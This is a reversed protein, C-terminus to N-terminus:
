ENCVGLDWNSTSMNLDRFTLKDWKGCGSYTEKLTNGDCNLCIDCACVNTIVDITLIRLSPEQEMNLLNLNITPGTFPGIITNGCKFRFKLDGFFPPRIFPLEPVKFTVNDFIRKGKGFSEWRDLQPNKIELTLESCGSVKEMSINYTYTDNLSGKKPMVDIGYENIHNVGDPDDDNSRTYSINAIWASGSAFNPCRGGPIKSDLTLEWRVEKAGSEIPLAVTKWNTDNCQAKKVGGIYLSYNVYYAPNMNISKKWAFSITGPEPIMGYICSSEGCKIIGSSISAQNDYLNNNDSTWINGGCYNWDPLQSNSAQIMVLFAIIAFALDMKSM